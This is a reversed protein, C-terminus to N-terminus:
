RVDDNNEESELIEKPIPYVTICRTSNKSFVFIKDKYVKIRKSTGKSLVYNKLTGDPLQHATKGKINANHIMLKANSKDCNLREKARQYVHSTNSSKKRSM